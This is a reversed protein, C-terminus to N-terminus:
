FYLMGVVGCIAKVFMLGDIITLYYFISKRQHLSYAVILLLIFPITNVVIRFIPFHNIIVFFIFSVFGIITLPMLISFITKRLGFSVVFTKLQKNYDTAYDKIDFMISLVSIFMMNKIFLFCSTQTLSLQQQSQIQNYFLPFLTVLGAWVFGIIFPKLWHTNRLSLKTSFGYYLIATTPFILVIALSNANLLKIGDLINPLLLLAFIVSFSILTVQTNFVQKKNKVYWITRENAVAGITESIYAKIYFIVTFCFILLYYIIPAITIRQQLTAEISLAVACVGYFYNGFFFTKKM